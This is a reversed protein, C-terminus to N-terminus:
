TPRPDLLVQTKDGEASILEVADYNVGGDSVPPLARAKLRGDQAYLLIFNPDRLLGKQMAKVADSPLEVLKDGQKMWAKGDSFIQQMKMPGM